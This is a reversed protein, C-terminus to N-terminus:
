AALSRRIEHAIADASDAGGKTPSLNTLVIISTGTAALRGAISQYGLIDGDHGILGGDNAIGLGYGYPPEGPDRPVPRFTLRQRQLEDSILSGDLLARLWLQLDSLTSVVGGAAWAVSADLRTFDKHEGGNSGAPSAASAIPSGAMGTPVDGYGHAFPSPLTPGSPLSTEAMGLPGFLRRELVTAFAQSTLREVIMGLLIYNTNSYGFRAGPAFVPPHALGIDILERPTWGRTPDAIVRPLFSKDKLLDFIGSTMGLLHRVTIQKAHPFAAGAPLLQALTDDLTITGEDVLQLVVTATMTKTISGIRMHMAPDMPTQRQLDGVGFGRKITKTSPRDVLVNAGPIALSRMTATVAAELTEAPPTAAPTASAATTPRNLTLPLAAAIPTAAALGLFHRRTLLKRQSM